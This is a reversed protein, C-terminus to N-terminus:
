NDAAGLLIWDRIEDIKDAALPDGLLPMRGGCGGPCTLGACTHSGDLKHLLFSDQPRGASVRSLAPAKEAPARLDALIAAVTAEDPTIGSRPGLLPRNDPPRGQDTGHCTTSM